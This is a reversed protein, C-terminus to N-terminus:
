KKIFHQHFLTIRKLIKYQVCSETDSTKEISKFGNISEEM